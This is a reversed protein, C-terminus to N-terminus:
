PVKPERIWCLDHYACKRCFPKRHLSPPTSSKRVRRLEPILKEIESRAQPTLEILLRKKQRPYVLYGRPEPIGVTELVYLYFEVQRRHAKVLRPARKVEYVLRRKPDYADIKIRGIQLQRWRPNHHTYATDSLLKGDAVEESFPEMRLGRAGFWFQRPCVVFSEVEHGAIDGIWGM